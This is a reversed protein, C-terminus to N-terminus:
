LQQSWDYYQYQPAFQADGMLFENDREGRVDYAGTASAEYSPPPPAPASPDAPLEPPVAGPEFGEPLPPPPAMVMLPITGVIIPIQLRMDFSGMPVRVKFQVVYDIDIINCFRLNSPPLAPVQIYSTKKFDEGDDIEDKWDVECFDHNVTRSKTHAIFRVNQQISIQTGPLDKDSNNEVNADFNLYEGPVFGCKEVHFDAEIPGSKCCLCCLTKSDQAHGAVRAAPEYNLDYTDLVTFLRKTKHDFKWPKKIVAKVFYRVRGHDGEFSSPINPPLQYSFPFRHEGAPLHRRSDMSDEGCIPFKAKFYKEDNRYHETVTRTGGDGDSEQRQETWHVEAEGKLKLKIKEFDMGDNLNIVLVGSVVQGSWFVTQNNAFDIYFSNLKGM